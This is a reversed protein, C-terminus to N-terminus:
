LYDDSYFLGERLDGLDFMLLVEHFKAQKKAEDNLLKITAIESNLSLDAYRIVNEIECAMPLRLLAKKNKISTYKALNQWRSDAIYAFNLKALSKVLRVNGSLVKVVLFPYDIGNEQCMKLVSTANNMLKSKNAILKPYM